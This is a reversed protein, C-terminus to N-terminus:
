RQMAMRNIKTEKQKSTHKEKKAEQKQAKLGAEQTSKEKEKEETKQEETKQEEIKDEKKEIKKESSVLQRKERDIQFQVIKPIDALEAYVIGNIKKAKVKIKNPPNEIGRFWMEQNLYKNIKVKRTDRNEVKMHKALFVKIAKVAKKTKRYVPVKLIDRRLNITYERELEPKIEKEEAM